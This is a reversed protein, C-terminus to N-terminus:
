SYDKQCKVVAQIVDHDGRQISKEFAIQSEMFGFRHTILESLPARNSELLKIAAPFRFIFKEYSFFKSFLLSM